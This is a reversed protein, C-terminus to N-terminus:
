AVVALRRKRNEFYCQTCFIESCLMRWGVNKVDATFDYCLGGQCAETQMIEVDCRRRTEGGRRKATEIQKDHRRSGYAVGITEIRRDALATMIFKGVLKTEKAPVLRLWSQGAM